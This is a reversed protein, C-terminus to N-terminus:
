DGSADDKIISQIAEFWKDAIKVEGQDTPHVGDRTDTHPDFGSSQDVLIVRSTATDAELTIREIEANLKAIQAAIWKDRVPILKALLIIVDPNYAQLIEVAKRLMDASEEADQGYSVDNTGVHILIIDPPDDQLLKQLGRGGRGAVAELVHETRWGDHGEHDSDFPIGEYRPWPPNGGANSKLTGVFDFDVGADKLKVWLYYRYSLRGKRSQTISDGLPLIRLPAKSIARVRNM